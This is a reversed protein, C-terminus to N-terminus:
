AWVGSLSINTWGGKIVEGPVGSGFLTTMAVVGSGFLILVMTGLFEAICQGLLNGNKM